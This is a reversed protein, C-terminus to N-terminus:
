CARAEKLRQRREASYRRYYERYYESRHNKTSDRNADQRRGVICQDIAAHIETVYDDCAQCSYGYGDWRCMAWDGCDCRAWTRKASSPLGRTSYCRRHAPLQQLNHLQTQTQM